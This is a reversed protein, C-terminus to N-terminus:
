FLPLSISLLIWWLILASIIIRAQSKPGWTGSWAYGRGFCNNTTNVGNHCLCAFSEAVGSFGCFGGSAECDTCADMSYSDNYQVSIGFRWKSPDGRDDGFGYIASYSSCQLKPLDLAYSSGFGTPSQYVCCTSVPANQQLGIGTVGKCSYLGRCVRSNSGTDCLDEYPDFVPSNTSCGLLVFINNDMVSFPSARDLSFSGSNQMSECTSMLPDTIIMTRTSYDISAVDYIGSGTSFELKGTSSCRVNRAFDPHGCGFSTGFPYKVPIAGCTNHCTFNMPVAPISAFTTPLFPFLVLLYMFLWIVPPASM